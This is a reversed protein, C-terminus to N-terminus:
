STPGQRPARSALFRQVYPTGCLLQCDENKHILRSRGYRPTLLDIEFVQGADSYDGAFARRGAHVLTAVMSAAAAVSVHPYSAVPGLHGSSEAMPADGSGVAACALARSRNRYAQRAQGYYCGICAAEHGAHFTVVCGLGATAGNVLVPPWDAGVELRSQVQDVGVLAASRASWSGEERSPRWEEYTSTFPAVPVGAAALQESVAIAKDQGVADVGCRILRNLNSVEIEDPDVVNLRKVSVPSLPLLQAVNWGLGGASVLTLDDVDVSTSRWNSDEPYAAGGNELWVNGEVPDSSVQGTDLSVWTAPMPEAPRGADGATSKRFVESVALAAAFVLAPAAADLNSGAASHLDAFRCVSVAWGSAQLVVDDHRAVHVISPDPPGIWIAVTVDSLASEAVDRFDVEGFPDAGQLEAALAGRLSPPTADSDPSLVPRDLVKPDAVIISKAFARGMRRLMSAAWLAATQAGSTLGAKEPLVTAVTVLQSPGSTLNTRHDREAYFTDANIQRQSSGSGILAISPGTM